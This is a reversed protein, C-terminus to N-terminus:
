RRHMEDLLDDVLKEIVAVADPSRERLKALKRELPLRSAPSNAPLMRCKVSLLSSARENRFAIRLQAM